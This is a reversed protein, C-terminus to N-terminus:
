RFGGGGRRSSGFARRGGSRSSFGRGGARRRGYSLARSYDSSYSSNVKYSKVNNYKSYNKVKFSSANKISKAVFSNIKIIDDLSYDHTKIDQIVEPYMKKLVLAVKDAMGFMQAYMLYENWLSVEIPMKENILTFEKFFKKLGALKKAEEELSVDKDFYRCDFFQMKADKKLILKKDRMLDMSEFYIVDDFWGLIESANNKCWNIFENVELKGDWSASYMYDYLNCEIESEPRKLFDISNLVEKGNVNIDELKVNGNNIWKLLVAGLFNVKKDILNYNIGIWYAFFLDKNCPIERYVPVKEFEKNVKKGKKPFFLLMVLCLGVLFYLLKDM